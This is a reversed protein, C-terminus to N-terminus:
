VTRPFPTSGLGVQGGRLSEDDAIEVAIGAPIDPIAPPVVRIHDSLKLVEAKVAEVMGLAPLGLSGFGLGGEKQLSLWLLWVVNVVCEQGRRQHRTGVKCDTWCPLPQLVTIM